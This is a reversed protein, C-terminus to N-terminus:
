FRMISSAESNWILSKHITQEFVKGCGVSVNDKSRTDLTYVEFLEKKYGDLKGNSTVIKIINPNDHEDIMIEKANRIKNVNNVLIWEDKNIDYRELYSKGYSSCVVIEHNMDNYISVANTYTHNMKKLKISIGCNVAYLEAHNLEHGHGDIVAIFRDKDVMCLSRDTMKSLLAKSNCKWIVNLEDNFDLSCIKDDITGYLTKNIKSYIISLAQQHKIHNFPFPPLMFKYAQCSQNTMFHPHIATLYCSAGYFSNLFDLPQPPTYKQIQFILSWTNSSWINPFHTTNKFFPQIMPPLSTTNTIHSPTIFITPSHDVSWHLKNSMMFHQYQHINISYQKNPETVSYLALNQGYLLFTTIYPGYSLYLKILNVVDMPLTWEVCYGNILSEVLDVKTSM